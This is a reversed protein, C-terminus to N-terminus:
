NGHVTPIDTSSSWHGSQVFVFSPITVIMGELGGGGERDVEPGDELEAPSEMGVM